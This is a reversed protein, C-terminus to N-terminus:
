LYSKKKNNNNRENKNTDFLSEPMIIIKFNSNNIKYKMYM